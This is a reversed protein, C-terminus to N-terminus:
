YDSDDSARWDEVLEGGLDLMLTHRRKQSSGGGFMMMM